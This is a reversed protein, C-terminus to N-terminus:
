AQKEFKLLGLRIFEDIVGNRESVDIIVPRNYRSGPYSPAITPKGQLSLVAESIAEGYSDHFAHRAAMYSHWSAKGRAIVPKGKWTIRWVNGSKSDFAADLKQEIQQLTNTNM